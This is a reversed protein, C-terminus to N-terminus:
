HACGYPRGASDRRTVRPRGTYSVVIARSESRGSPDCVILTGNTARLETSRLTFGKRNATIVVGPETAHYHLIAEDDDRVPPEDRDTNVFRIWGASWDTVPDCSLGDQSPCLTVARRRVISEKRALYISDFLANTEARLRSNALLSGFSPLGLAVIVAVLALTM